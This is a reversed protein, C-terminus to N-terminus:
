KKKELGPYAAALTEKLAARARQLRSKVAGVDLALIQAIEALPLQEYHALILVERQTHPLEAVAREVIASLENRLLDREPSSQVPGAVRPASRRHLRKLSQNRVIGFLYTRISTRASDYACSPRLLELFCEQVIDEADSISGTLRWAFRFLAAHHEDFVQLFAAEGRAAQIPNM